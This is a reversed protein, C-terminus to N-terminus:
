GNWRLSPYSLSGPFLNSVEELGEGTLHCKPYVSVLHVKRKYISAIVNKLARYSSFYGGTHPYYYSDIWYFFEQM